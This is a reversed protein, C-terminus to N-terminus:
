VFYVSASISASIVTIFGVTIKIPPSDLNQEFDDDGFHGEAMYCQTRVLDSAVFKWQCSTQRDVNFMFSSHVSVIVILLFKILTCYLAVTLKIKEM